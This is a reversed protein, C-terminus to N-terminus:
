NRAKEDREMIEGWFLIIPNSLYPPSIFPHLALFPFLFAPGIASFLKVSHKM